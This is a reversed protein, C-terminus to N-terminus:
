GGAASSRPSCPSIKPRLVPLPEWVIFPDIRRKYRGLMRYHMVDYIKQHIHFHQNARHLSVYGPVIGIHDWALLRNRVGEHDAIAIPKSADVLAMFMKVTEALRTFSAGCLEVRYGRKEGYLPRYVALNIHTTNGGRKIEWPHGGMGRRLHRGDIWDAFEQPSNEDIDLLGGHRGDAYREYMERGTLSADVQEGKRRGALYAIRCYEFFVSASMSDVTTNRDELFYGNEVLRVFKRCRSKGIEKDIRFGDKLSARVLAHPVIGYRRDLPYGSQVEKNARIWDKEVKKLWACASELMAEWAADDGDSFFPRPCKGFADIVGIKKGSGVELGPLEGDIHFLYFTGKYKTVQVHNWRGSRDPFYLNWIHDLCSLAYEFRELEKLFSFLRGECKM